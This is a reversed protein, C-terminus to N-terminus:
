SELWRKLEALADTDESVYSPHTSWPIRRAVPYTSCKDPEGMCFKLVINRTVPRSLDLGACKPGYTQLSIQGWTLHPCISPEKKPRLKEFFGEFPSLGEGM